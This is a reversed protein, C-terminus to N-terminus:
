KAQKQLVLRWLHKRRKWTKWDLLSVYAKESGVEFGSQTRGAGRQITYEGLIWFTERMGKAGLCIFVLHGIHELPKASFRYAISSNPGVLM